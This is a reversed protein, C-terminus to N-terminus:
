QETGRRRRASFCIQIRRHVAVWSFFRSFLGRGVLPDDGLRRHRSMPGSGVLREERPRARWLLAGAWAPDHFARARRM